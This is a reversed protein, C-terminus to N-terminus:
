PNPVAQCTTPIHNFCRKAREAAELRLERAVDEEAKKKMYMEVVSPLDAWPKYNGFFTCKLTKENVLNMPHTKFADDKNQVVVLVALGWGEM